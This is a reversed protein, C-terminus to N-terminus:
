RNKWNDFASLRSGEIIKVRRFMGRVNDHPPRPEKADYITVKTMKEDSHYDMTLYLRAKEASFDGGRGLEAGSKMQVGIFCVADGLKQHVMRIPRAIDYFDKSIELYDILYLNNKNPEIYDEFNNHCQFAKIKWQDLPAFKIMRKKFETPHMESNLYVVNFKNQNAFAINMLLATKGSSKSGSVMCINGPSIVCMDNLNIPMKIDVETVEDLVSLDMALKETTKIRYYGRREGQPELIKGEKCLRSLIVTLNKKEEKTTIHLTQLIDTTNINGNQLLLFERVEDALNREKRELREMISQITRELEKEPFPPKCNKALNELVQKVMWLQCHGDGLAIGIKFLDQNRNGEQLIKYYNNNITTDIESCSVVSNVVDRYIFIEKIKNPLGQPAVESLALGPLWEYKQGHENVSPPAVIYGGEGRSDIHPMINPIINAKNIIRTGNSRYWIHKGGRPTTAIPTLYSDPLQEQIYQYAEPSDCDIVSIKSISGTLVGIMAKPWKTWWQEIEMKTSLTTQYIKWDVYPKKEFKKSSPSYDPKIPIVCYGMDIYELAAKMVENM